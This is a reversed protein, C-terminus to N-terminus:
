IIDAFSKKLKHFWAHGLVFVGAAVISFRWLPSFDPAHGELFVARYGRVLIFLPNQSLVLNVSHPLSSLYSEPYCIPTLFFWVTLIFGILQGLDRVFAGLAALFWALGLTFLAQPVLLVPVWVVTAPVSGRLILLLGAYLLIAVAQTFLGAAVLNVPLTEVAFVLKKVFNRHELIVSPARGIADSFALWPLMGALFYLAFGSRSTDQEFRTRLVVGFVFFYTLMLLLPSIVIWFSGGLSGRHRGAVDRRVMTRILATNRWISAVPYSFTRALTRAARTRKLAALATIRPEGASVIGGAVEFEVTLFPWGQEHFWCVGERLPSIVALYRADQQPLEIEISVGASEGPKLASGPAARPGELLLTEGGADMLQVGVAFGEDTRWVESSRNRIQFAIRALRGEVTVAPAVYEASM